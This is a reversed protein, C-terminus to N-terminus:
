HLAEKISCQLILGTRSMQRLWQPIHHHLHHLIWQYGVMRLCASDVRRRRRFKSDVHFTATNIRQELLCQLSLSANEIMQWFEEKHCYDVSRKQCTQEHKGEAQNDPNRRISKCSLMAAGNDTHEGPPCPNLVAPM